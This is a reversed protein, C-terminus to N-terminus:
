SRGERNSIFYKKRKFEAYNFLGIFAIMIFLATLYFTGPLINLNIRYNIVIIGVACLFIIGMTHLSINKWLLEYYREKKQKTEIIKIVTGALDSTLDPITEKKMENNMLRYIAVQKQVSENNILFNEFKSKDGPFNGAAYEQLDMETYHIIDM